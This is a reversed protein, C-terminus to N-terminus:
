RGYGDYVGSYGTRAQQPRPRSEPLPTSRRDGRRFERRDVTAPRMRPAAAGALAALSPDCVAPDNDKPMEFQVLSYYYELVEPYRNVSAKWCEDLGERLRQNAMM